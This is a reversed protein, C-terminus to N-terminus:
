NGDKVENILKGKKFGAINDLTTDLIRGLAEKTYFATHPTIIVNRKRLLEHNEILICMEEKKVKKKLLEREERIDGEGELVDLGAGALIGRDLAFLLAGTDVIAGRACNILYSGKKIKRINKMSIMHRTEKCLPAHITIIDSKKLLQDLSVYKFNMKKALKHDRRPAYAIVNMEFGNAMKVVHQGIRGPGIVGITKGALDMGCLGQISFDCKKTREISKHVHRILALMLAFTHEAVTNEGYSPVNAVKVGKDKCSKLDIHDYGTSMTGVFKLSSMKEIVGSDLESYIFCVVGELDGYKKVNKVTLPEDIFVLKHKKLRRKVYDKEWDELEFFGIKM